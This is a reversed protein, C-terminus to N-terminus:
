NQSKLSSERIILKHDLIIQKCSERHGKIREILLTAAETGIRYRPQDVTTLSPKIISSFSLNDFGVLGFDKGIRIDHKDAERIIFQANFDSITFIADISNKEIILKEFSTSIKEEDFEVYEVMNEDYELGHDLLANQYGKLRLRAYRFKQNSNFMSIRRYGQNILHSVADYASKENDISVYCLDTADYQSCIVVPYDQSIKRVNKSRATADMWILGDVLKQELLKIYKSEVDWEAESNALLLQYDNISLTDQIGKVIESYYPNSINPVLTLIVKSSSRRLNRGLMNPKYDLESIAKLVKDRTEDIVLDSNNLVRSVTAVSVGALNAVDLITSM